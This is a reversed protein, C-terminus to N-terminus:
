EAAAALGPLRLAAALPRRPSAASDPGYGIRLVVQPWAGSAPDTLLERLRPVEM